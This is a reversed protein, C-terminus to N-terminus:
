LRLHWCICIRVAADTTDFKLNPSTCICGAKKLAPDERNSGSIYTSLDFTWKTFRHHYFHEIKRIMMAMRKEVQQGRGARRPVWWIWWSGWLERSRWHQEGSYTSSKTNVLQIEDVLSDIKGRRESYRVAKGPDLRVVGKPAWTVLKMKWGKGTTINKIDLFTTVQHYALQYTLEFSPM